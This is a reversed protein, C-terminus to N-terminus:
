HLIREMVESFKADAPCCNISSPKLKGYWDCGHNDIKPYKTVYVFYIISWLSSFKMLSKRMFFRKRQDLCNITSYFICTPLNLLYLYISVFRYLYYSSYDKFANETCTKQSSLQKDADRWLSIYWQYISSTESFEYITYRTGRFTRLFSFFKM